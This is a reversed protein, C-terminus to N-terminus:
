ARVGMENLREDIVDRIELLWEQETYERDDINPVYGKFFKKAQTAFSREGVSLERKEEPEPLVGHNKFKAVEERLKAVTWKQDRAQELYYKAPVDDLSAVMKFHKFSVTLSSGLQKGLIEERFTISFRRAVTTFEVLTAYEYGTNAILDEYKSQGWGTVPSEAYVMLDGLYFQLMGHVKQVGLVAQHWEKITPSGEFTVGYPSFKIHESGQVEETVKVEIEKSM